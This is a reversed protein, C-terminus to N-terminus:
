EGDSEEIEVLLEVEVGEPALPAQMAGGEVCAVLESRVSWEWQWGGRLNSGIGITREKTRSGEAWCAHVLSALSIQWSRPAVRGQAALYALAADREQLQPGCNSSTECTDTSLKDYRSMWSDALDLWGAELSQDLGYRALEWEPFRLEPDDMLELLSELDERQLGEPHARTFIDLTRNWLPVDSTQELATFAKLSVQTPDYSNAMKNGLAELEYIRAYQALSHDPWITQAKRAADLVGTYDLEPPPITGESRRSILLEDMFDAFASAREVELAVLALWPNPFRVHLRPLDHPARRSTAM